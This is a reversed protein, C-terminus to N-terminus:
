KEIKEFELVLIGYQQIDSDSIIEKAKKLANEPSLGPALKNLDEAATVAELSKYKRVGTIKVPIKEAGSQFEVEDDVKIGTFAPFAIRLELTKLGAKIMDFFENKLYITKREAPIKPFEQSM